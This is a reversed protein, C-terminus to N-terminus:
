RWYNRMDENEASINFEHRVKRGKPDYDIKIPTKVEINVFTGIDVVVVSWSEAWLENLMASGQELGKQVGTGAVYKGVDGTVSSSTSDSGQNVTKEAGAYASAAGAATGLLVNTSIFEAADSHFKGSICETGATDTLVALTQASVADQGSNALNSGVQAIRGDSFIFTFSTVYARACSLSFNGVAYGGVFAEALEPIEFGNAALLKPPIKLKFGMPNVSGSKPVLAIVRSALRSGIISTNEPVTYVPKPEFKDTTTNVANTAGQKISEGQKAVWNTAKFVGDEINLERDIPNVWVVDGTVGYLSSSGNGIEFEDSSNLPNKPRSPSNPKSFDKGSMQQAVDKADNITQNLNAMLKDAETQQKSQQAKLEELQRKLEAIEPSDSIKIEANNKNAKLEEIEGALKMQTDSIANMQNTRESEKQVLTQITAVSSDGAGLGIPTKPAPPLGAEESPTSSKFLYVLIFVSFIAIGYKILPNPKANEM